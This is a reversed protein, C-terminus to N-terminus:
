RAQKFLFLIPSQQCHRGLLWAMMRIEAEKTMKTEMMVEEQVMKIMKLNLLNM